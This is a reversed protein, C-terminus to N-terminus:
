LLKWSATSLTNIYSYPALGNAPAKEKVAVKVKGWPLLGNTWALLRNIALSHSCGWSPSEPTQV